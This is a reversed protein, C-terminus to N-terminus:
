YFNPHQLARVASGFRQTLTTLFDRKSYDKVQEVGCEDALVNPTDKLGDILGLEVARSGTWVDANFLVEDPAKLRDGRGAKVKDIFQKHMTGLIGRMKETHEANQKVFPDGGNKSSGAAIVRREVGVKPLVEQFGFSASIVGISGIISSGDAYIQDGAVGIMYGGSAMYDRALVITKKKHKEKLHLVRDHILGAQVPTGGPSNIVLLVCTAQADKFANDLQKEVRDIAIPGGPGIDGTLVVQSAYPGSIELKNRIEQFSVMYWLTTILFFGGILTFKINRWNLEKRRLALTQENLDFMRDMLADPIDSRRFDRRRENERREETQQTATNQLTTKWNNDSQKDSPAPSTPEM